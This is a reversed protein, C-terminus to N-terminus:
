MTRCTRSPGSFAFDHASRCADRLSQTRANPEADECAWVGIIDNPVTPCPPARSRWRIPWRWM